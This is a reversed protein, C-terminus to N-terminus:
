QMWLRQTCTFLGENVTKAEQGSGDLRGLVKFDKQERVGITAM